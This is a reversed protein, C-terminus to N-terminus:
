QRSSVGGEALLCNAVNDSVKNLKALASDVYQNAEQSGPLPVENASWTGRIRLNSFDFALNGFDHSATVSFIMEYNLATGMTRPVIFSVQNKGQATIKTKAPNSLPSGSIGPINQAFCFQLVDAPLKAALRKVVVREVQYSGNATPIITVGDPIPRYPQPAMSSCGSLAGLMRDSALHESEDDNGLSIRGLPWHQFPLLYGNRTRARTNSRAVQAESAM